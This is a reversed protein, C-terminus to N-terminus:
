TQKPILFNYRAFPVLITLLTRYMYSILRIWGGGKYLLTILVLPVRYIYINVCVCVCMYIYIYIYM